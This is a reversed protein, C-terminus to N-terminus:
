MVSFILYFAVGIITFVGIVRRIISLTRGWKKNGTTTTSNVNTTNNSPQLTSNGSLKIGGKNIKTTVTGAEGTSANNSETTSSVNITLNISSTLPLSHSEAGQHNKTIEQNPTKLVNNPLTECNEVKAENSRKCSKENAQRGQSASPLTPIRSFGTPKSTTNFFQRQGSNSNVNNLTTEYTFKENSRRDEVM